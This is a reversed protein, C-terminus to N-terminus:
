ATRAISGRPPEEIKSAFTLFCDLNEEGMINGSGVMFKKLSPLPEM